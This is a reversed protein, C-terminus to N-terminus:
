RRFRKKKAPRKSRRKQAMKQAMSTLHDLLRDADEQPTLSSIFDLICVVHLAYVVCTLCLAFRALPMGQGFMVVRSILAVGYVASGAIFSSCSLVRDLTSHLHTLPSRLRAVCGVPRSM